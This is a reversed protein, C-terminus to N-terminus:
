FYSFEGYPSKIELTSKPANEVHGIVAASIGFEGALDILFNANEPSLYAELRHGMNFVQYMEQWSTGSEKQILQFLPPVEMLNDKVIKKEEVFKLM